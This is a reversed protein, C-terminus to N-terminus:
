RRSKAAERIRSKMEEFRSMARRSQAETWLKKAEELKTRAETSKDEDFLRIADALRVIAQSEADILSSDALKRDLKDLAVMASALDQKMAIESTEAKVIEAQLQKTQKNFTFKELVEKKLKENKLCIEVKQLQMIDALNVNKQIKGQQLLKTSWELRDKARVLDAEALKIAGDATKADEPYSGERYERVAIEAIIRAKEANNKATRARQLRAAAETREARLSDANDLRTLIERGLSEITAKDADNPEDAAIAPKTSLSTFLLFSAVLVGAAVLGSRRQTNM